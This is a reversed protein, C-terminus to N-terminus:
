RGAKLPRATYGAGQVAKVLASIHVRRGDYEVTARPPSESVKAGIVGDIAVLAKHVHGACAECTMGGIALTARANESGPASPTSATAAAATPSLTDTIGAVMYPFAMALVAIAT